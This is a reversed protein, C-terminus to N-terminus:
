TGFWGFGGFGTAAGTALVGTDVGAAVTGGGVTGTSVVGTAEVGMGAGAATGDAGGMAAYVGAVVFTTACSVVVGVEM